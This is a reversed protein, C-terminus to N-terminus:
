FPAVVPTVEAEGQAVDLVEEEAHNRLKDHM